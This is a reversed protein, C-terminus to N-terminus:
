AFFAGRASPPGNRSSAGMYINDITSRGRRFGAQGEPLIKLERVEKELRNRIVETYIKYATSLLSIGRYNKADNIEGKKYLPVIIATKWDDPM